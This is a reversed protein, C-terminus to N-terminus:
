IQRQTLQHRRFGLAVPRLWAPLRRGMPPPQLKQGRGPQVLPPRFGGGAPQSLRLPRFKRQVYLRRQRALGGWLLPDRRVRVHHQTELQIPLAPPDSHAHQGSRDSLSTWDTWDADVELNWNATPRYSYGVVATQPFHYNVTGPQSNVPPPFPTDLHGQFNMDTASRYTIGISHQELPHWLLGVNFGADTDRGRLRFSPDAVQEAQAYDLMMGASISFTRFLQYAIVPNARVYDIEGGKASGAWPATDPWAMSLGYPEYVGLGIALHYNTFNLTSFTQPLAAWQQQSNISSGAPSTYRSALTIGYMGLSLNAGDLQTIGAPNYYVASPDDATAAFANGRATAFADQDPVRIGVAFLAAPNALACLLCFLAIGGGIPSPKKM